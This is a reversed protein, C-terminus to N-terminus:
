ALPNRTRLAPFFSFDRDATWLERVGHDLCIAAIRADRVRPGLVTGGIRRLTALHEPGEGIFRAGGGSGVSAVYELAVPMPVPNDFVRPNTIVSLFEHVCPWPVAWSAGDELLRQLALQAATRLPSGASNAYVLINTDVAIM